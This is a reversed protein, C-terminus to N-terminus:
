ENKKLLVELRNEITKYQEHYETLQISVQDIKQQLKEKNQHLEKVNYPFSNEIRNIENKLYNRQNILLEKKENLIQMTNPNYSVTVPTKDLLLHIIRLETLDGNKYANVADNFQCHQEDTTNPNIDPHLKKVINTYLKKLESSEEETLPIEKISSKLRAADIEKQKELLKQNYEKYENDLQKEIEAIDYSKERNLFAQIIEIKRKVRLINCQYEFVAYELKGIKLMYETQLKPCAHYLLLDRDYVLCALETELEQISSVFKEYELNKIIDSM